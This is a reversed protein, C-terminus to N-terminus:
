LCTPIGNFPAPKVFRQDYGEMVITLSIVASWAAAKWNEKLAKVLTTQQEEVTAAQAERLSHLQAKPDDDHEAGAGTAPDNKIEKGDM